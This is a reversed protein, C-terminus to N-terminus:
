FGLNITAGFTRTTPLAFAERGESINETDNMLEPDVYKSKNSIFFLNRGVISVKASKFFTKALLNKPLSYGLIMERMRVNSADRVFAEGCPTNRGGVANWFTEANTKITNPEGAATVGNEDPFINEGFQLTGDRGTATYELNGFGATIAETFSIFTGGKRIDILASFSFDKYSFTNNVGGFWDPNYNAVKVTMGPTISPLGNAQVIVNGKTDRLWGRAYIDGFPQGKVLKYERIFDTGRSLSPVGETLDQVLSKNKAWNIDIDWHFNKSSVISGGLTIEVGKNQIDAGNMFVSAVGSTVPVPSAFLQDYTNSKYLTLSMRARDKFMRLDLGGELSTTSEPKLNTAPQVNSLGITGLTVGAARYLLYPNTDNGVEALSGRIKLNSIVSPLTVLDSVIATLGISPYFYSRSSAPLTSSWDNRGTLNLFLANKYSVEGFGYVSNVVKNSYGEVPVKGVTTNDLAFLNEVTFVTGSGGVMNYEYERHNAGANLDFVFDSATVHYNLLVDSNWEYSNASNKIYGGSPYTTYTDNHYKAESNNITGDFASRGMISLNKLVQYKLSMMAIMRQVTSPHQNNYLTWYPNGSGNDGPKWFHQRTLGSSNVFTYHEIDQTRINRPLIYLYRMPNDYVEGSVLVNEFEQRILNLKSDLTIKDTL